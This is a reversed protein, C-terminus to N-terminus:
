WIAINVELMGPQPDSSVCSFNWGGHIWIWQAKKAEPSGFAVGRQGKLESHQLESFWGACACEWNLLWWHSSWSGVSRRWAGTHWAVNARHSGFSGKWSHLLQAWLWYPRLYGLHLWLGSGDQPFVLALEQILIWNSAPTLSAERWHLLAQDSVRNTGMRWLGRYTLFSRKHFGFRRELAQGCMILIKTRSFVEFFFPWCVCSGTQVSVSSAAEHSLPWSCPLPFLPASPAPSLACINPQGSTSVSLVTSSISQPTARQMPQGLPCGPTCGPRSGREHAEAYTHQRGRVWLFCDFSGGVLLEGGVKSEAHIFVAQQCESLLKM